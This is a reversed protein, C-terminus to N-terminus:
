DTNNLTTETVLLYITETLLKIAIQLHVMIDKGPMLWVMKENFELTKDMYHLTYLLFIDIIINIVGTVQFVM